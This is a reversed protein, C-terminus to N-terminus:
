MKPINIKVIEKMMEVTFPRGVVVFEKKQSIYKPDGYWLTAHPYVNLNHTFGAIIVLEKEGTKNGRKIVDILVADGRKIECNEMDEIEDLSPMVQVTGTGATKETYLKIM